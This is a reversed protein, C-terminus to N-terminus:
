YPLMAFIPVTFVCSKTLQWFTWNELSGWLKNMLVALDDLELHLLSMNLWSWHGDQRVLYHFIVYNCKELTRHDLQYIDKLSEDADSAACVFTREIVLQFMQRSLLLSPTFYEEIAPRKLTWWPPLSTKKNHFSEQNRASLVIERDWNMFFQKAVM